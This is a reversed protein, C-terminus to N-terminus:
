IPSFGDFYESFDYIKSLISRFFSQYSDTEAKKPRDMSPRAKRNSELLEAGAELLSPDVLQM